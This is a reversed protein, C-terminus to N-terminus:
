AQVLSTFSDTFLSSESILDYKGNAYKLVAYRQSPGMPAYMGVLLAARKVLDVPLGNKEASKEIPVNDLVDRMVNTFGRVFDTLEEYSSFVALVTGYVSPYVTNESTEKVMQPYGLMLMYVDSM